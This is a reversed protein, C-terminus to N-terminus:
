NVGLSAHIKPELRRLFILIHYYGLDVQKEFSEVLIYNKILLLSNSTRMCLDNTSKDTDHVDPITLEKPVLKSCEEIPTNTKEDTDVDIINIAKSAYKSYEENSSLFM